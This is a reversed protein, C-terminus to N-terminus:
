WMGKAQDNTPGGPLLGSLSQVMIDGSVKKASRIEPSFDNPIRQFLQGYM